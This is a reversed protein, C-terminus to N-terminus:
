EERDVVAFLDALSGYWNLAAAAKRQNAELWRRSGHLMRWLHSDSIGMQRALWRYMIGRERLVQEIRLQQGPQVLVPRVQPKSGRRRERVMESMEGEQVVIQVMEGM